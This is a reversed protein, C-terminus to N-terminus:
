VPPAIPLPQDIDGYDYIMYHARSVMTERLVRGSETGVWWAYYAPALRPTGPVLFTVIQAPEGGVDEIRGLHFGTAGNYNEGWAAPTLVPPASGELWDGGGQRQWRRTGIIIQEFERPAASGTEASTSGAPQYSRSTASSAAPQGGSDDRVMLESVAVGGTGSALRQMWRVSHMSTMGVLGREYVARAEDSGAPGTEDFGNVNPDPLRLYFPVSVDEAGLRRVLVDVRWWDDLSLQVGETVFGGAPTATTAVDPQETDHDLSMFALRVLAIQDVPIPAGDAAAVLVTMQNDGPKAPTVQLRVLLEDKAGSGGNAPAALDLVKFTGRAVAPPALLALVSGGLVVLLVLAAELRVTTRLTAGARVAARRLSLRHFSALGLVPVLIAVKAILFGGYDSRWLSRLTPLVLGANLVGTAIGVLALVLAYRSFQRVPDHAEGEGDGQPRERGWPWNLALQVLGGVWLGVAWQHLVISPVAVARWSERASAHSTLALGLLAALALGGGVLQTTRLRSFRPGAVLMAAGLPLVIVLTAPRLWWATPLSAVADGLGPKAAGEPPFWTQLVPEAVTAILAIASGAVISLLRRREVAPSLDGSRIFQGYFFGAAAIAAGLFTLWRMAIAWVRPSEGEVSAAGPARATGAVRFAYSGTLTHGDDESRISWAVTYTGAGIGSVDALVHRPDNPDVRANSVTISEDSGEENLVRITPSGPGVAVRETTWLEISRPPAGLLGDEPPSSREVNAHGAAPSGMMGAFVVAIMM